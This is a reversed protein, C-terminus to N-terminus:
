LRREHASRAPDAPQGGRKPIGILDAIMRFIELVDRIDLQQGLHLLQRAMDDIGLGAMEIRGLERIMVLICQDLQSLLLM